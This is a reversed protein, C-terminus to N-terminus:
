VLLIDLLWEAKPLPIEPFLLSNEAVGQLAAWFAFSLSLSDGQKIQGQRQGEEILPTCLKINNIQGAKKRVAEPAEERLARSMLLFIKATFDSKEIAELTGQTVAQFFLMPNKADVQMAAGAGQMGIDVLSEYLTEKTEYYHFLLSHTINARQAIDMTTTAGFGKTIFLDLAANLISNRRAEKQDARIGM